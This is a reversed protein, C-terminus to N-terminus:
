PVQGYIPAEIPALEEGNPMWERGSNLVDGLWENALEEVSVGRAMAQSLLREYLEADLFLSAVM